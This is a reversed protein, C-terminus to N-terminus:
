SCFVMLVVADEVRQGLDDSYTSLWTKGEHTHAVRGYM